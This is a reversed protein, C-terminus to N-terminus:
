IAFMECGPPPLPVPHEGPTEPGWGTEHSTKEELLEPADTVSVLSLGASHSRVLRPHRSSATARPHVSPLQQTHCGKSMAPPDLLRRICLTPTRFSACRSSQHLLLCLPVLPLRQSGGQAELAEWVGEARMGHERWRGQGRDQGWPGQGSHFRGPAQRM